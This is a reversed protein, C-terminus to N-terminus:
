HEHQDFFYFMYHRLSLQKYKEYFIMIKKNNSKLKFYESLCISTSLSCCLCFYLNALLFIYFILIM